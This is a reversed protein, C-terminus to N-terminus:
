FLEYQTTDRFDLEKRLREAAAAAEELSRFFGGRHRGGDRWVQVVWRSSQIDWYVGRHGSANNANLGARNQVNQGHTVPELHAPNFCAREHCTHDLMLGDPIPGVHLAYAVRHTYQMRGNFRIRGYGDHTKVGSWLWCEDPKDPHGTRILTQLYGYPHKDADM